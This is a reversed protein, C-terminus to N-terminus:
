RNLKIALADFSNSLVISVFNNKIEIKHCEAEYICDLRFSGLLPIQIETSNELEFTHVILLAEQENEQYRVVAQWGCLKRYSLQQPGYIYSVGNQNIQSIKRYFSMGDKITKWQKSDLKDVDGSLCMVGLFTNVILYVIRKISDTERLVAWIQSQSPLIARHLNAAIVPIEKEEHADSFSAMAGLAMMSPELRHGGSSCIEIIIDPIERKIKKYFAEVALMQNYLGVGLSEAGDCGLGISENYDIKIYEFQYYQLFKIVKESLYDITWPDRMDWFRRTGSTIVKGNRKLLHDTCHYYKSDSGVVELEFWIGPKLNAEKIKKVAESLGNPFNQSSVQWDGMNNEWGKVPDAYWGADIVFYDLDKGKIVDLIDCINKYTPNGWTTCFENFIIPLQQYTVNQKRGEQHIATLRQCTADFGKTSVTLYATPTKFHEGPKVTKCWQGYDYDPLGGSVCLADDRRYIEMQWSSPCALQVAWITNQVRDEIAAFPFYGRVPMSGIQGYKESKVGHRSWTPELQIDEISDIEVRGENSWKSRMRYLRLRNTGEDITFPTLAGISFSSLMELSITTDGNNIYQTHISVGEQGKIYELCHEAKQGKQNELVTIISISERTEQVKQNVYRYDEVSACNRMTQGNSFGSSFADGEIKLQVLSDIKYKKDYVIEDKKEFPVLNMGILGDEIEYQLLMDGLHFDSIITRM